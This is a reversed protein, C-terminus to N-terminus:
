DTTSPLHDRVAAARVRAELEAPSLGQWGPIKENLNVRVARDVSPILLVLGPGSVRFFRGLRFIVLRESEHVIHISNGYAIAVMILVLVLALGM